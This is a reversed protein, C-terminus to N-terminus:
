GGVFAAYLARLTEPKSNEWELPDVGLKAAVRTFKGKIRSAKKLEEVLADLPMEPANTPPPNTDTPAVPERKDQDSGVAQEPETKAPESTQVPEQKKGRNLIDDLQESKPAVVEVKVDGPPIDIVEDDTKIGMTLEPCYLRAFFTAARYRLMLDPMTKWKSGNKGHWGEAKAMSITVEPGELKEGTEDVAWAICGLTDDAKNGTMKYRLPSFRGSANICSVLFQASWAPRGHVIYLNQMVALPSAGIRGAIELAIVANPLNNKYTDPVINSAALLTAMRQAVSFTDPSAFVSVSRNGTSQRALQMASAQKEENM